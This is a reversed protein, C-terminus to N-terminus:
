RDRWNLDCEGTWFIGRGLYTKTAQSPTLLDPAVYLMHMSKGGDLKHWGGVDCFSVYSNDQRDNVNVINWSKGTGSVQFDYYYGATPVDFLVTDIPCGSWGSATSSTGYMPIKYVKKNDYTVSDLTQHIATSDGYGDPYVMMYSGRVIALTSKYHGFAGRGWINNAYFRWGGRGTKAGQNYIDGDFTIEGSASLYIKVGEKDGDIATLKTFSGTVGQIEGKFVGKAAYLEGDKTVRFPADAGTKGGLWLAYDGSSRMSGFINSNSDLLNIENAGLLNIKANQALLLKTAVFDFNSAIKWHGDTASPSSTTYSSTCMYWKGDFLIVDLFQEGDAGQLYTYSGSVATEHQRITAGKEGKEVVPVSGTVSALKKESM